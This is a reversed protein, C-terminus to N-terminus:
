IIRCYEKPPIEQLYQKVYKETEWDSKERLLSNTGEIEAKLNINSGKGNNVENLDYSAAVAGATGVGGLGASAAGWLLSLGFTPGAFALSSAVGAVAYTGAAVGGAIGVTATLRERNDEMQKSYNIGYVCMNSFHECNRNRLNYNGKWFDKDKAWVAQEIVELYRKFPIIPHYCIIERTTDRLFGSWSTKEVANNERSFHFVADNGLCFGVHYFSVGWTKDLCKVWVIDLPKFHDDLNSPISYSYSSAIIFNKDSSSGVQNKVVYPSDM